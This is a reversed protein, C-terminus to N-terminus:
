KREFIYSSKDFMSGIAVPNIMLIFKRKYEILSIYINKNIIYM